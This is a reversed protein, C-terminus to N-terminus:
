SGLIIGLYGLFSGLVVREEPTVLLCEEQTVLLCEEPPALPCEEPPVLAGEEPPVRTHRKAGVSNSARGGAEGIYCDDAARSPADDTLGCDPRNQRNM